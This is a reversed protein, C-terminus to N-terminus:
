KFELYNRYKKLDFLCYLDNLDSLDNLGILDDLGTLDDPDSLLEFSQVLHGVDHLKIM